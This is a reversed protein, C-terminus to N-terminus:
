RRYFSTGSKSFRRMQVTRRGDSFNRLRSSELARGEKAAEILQLLVDLGLFKGLIGKHQYHYIPECGNEQIVRRRRAYQTARSYLLCLGLASAALGILLVPFGVLDAGATAVRSRIDM